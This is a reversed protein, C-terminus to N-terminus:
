IRFLSIAWNQLDEGSLRALEGADLWNGFCVTCSDVITGPRLRSNLKILPTEGCRPCHLQPGAEGRTAHFLSDQKLLNRPHEKVLKELELADLWIGRCKPCRDIEVSAASETALDTNDCKPCKM